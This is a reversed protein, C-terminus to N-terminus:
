KQRMNYGEFKCHVSTGEAQLIRPNELESDRDM